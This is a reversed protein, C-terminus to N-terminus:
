VNSRKMYYKVGGTKLIAIIKANKMKMMMIMMMTM